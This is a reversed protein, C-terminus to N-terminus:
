KKAIGALRRVPFEMGLMFFLLVIGVEGGLHLLPNGSLYGSLGIGLIIYLVVGPIRIKMGIFGVAFLMIFIGGAIFLVPFQIVGM